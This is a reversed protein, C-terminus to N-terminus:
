ATAPLPRTQCETTKASPIVSTMPRIQQLSGAEPGAPSTREGAPLFRGYGAGDAPPMRLRGSRMRDFCNNGISPANGPLSHAM